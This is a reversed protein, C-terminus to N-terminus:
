FYFDTGAIVGHKLPLKFPSLNLGTEVFSADYEFLVRRNDIALRGVFVKDEKPQYYVHVVKVPDFKM